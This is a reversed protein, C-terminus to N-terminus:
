TEEVSPNGSDNARHRTMFFMVCPLPSFSTKGGEASNVIAALYGKFPKKKKKPPPPAHQGICQLINLLLGPRWERSALPWGSDMIIIDSSM